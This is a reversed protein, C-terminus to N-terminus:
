YIGFQQFHHKIHKQHFQAWEIKNLSGFTPNLIEAEPNEDFFSIYDDMEKKLEEIATNLNPFMLDVLGEGMVPNIFGKPLPRESMLIKKMLPIREPPTICKVEMKKSSIRFTLVLHEIMHQPTMIGWLAKTGESLKDLKNLENKLDNM